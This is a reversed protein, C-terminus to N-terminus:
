DDPSFGDSLQRSRIPHGRELIRTPTLPSTIEWLDVLESTFGDLNVDRAETQDVSFALNDNRAHYKSQYGIEFWNILVVDESIGNGLPCKVTITNPGELLFSQPVQAEFSYEAESAWFADDVLHNNLFVQTHHQPTAAYGKFLGRLTASLPSATSLDNLQLTYTVWDPSGSAYIHNWYWHDNDPGSSRSSQYAYNEELHDIKYFDEPVPSNGPTGDVIQIRRGASGDWTLWYVNEDTYPTHAQLGYFLISDTATFTNEKQSKVEISLESGQNFIQINDPHIQDLSVGANLLDQGTVQFLGDKNVLLKVSPGNLPLNPNLRLAPRSVPQRWARAQDYNLLNDHLLNEFPGEQFTPNQLSYATSSKYFIM